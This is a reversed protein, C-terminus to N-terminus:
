LPTSILSNAVRRICGWQESTPLGPRAQRIIWWGAVDSAIKLHLGEAMLRVRGAADRNLADVLTQCGRGSWELDVIRRWVGRVPRNRISIREHRGELRPDRVRYLIDVYRALYERFNDDQYEEDRYHVVLENVPGPEINLTAEYRDSFFGRKFSHMGRRVYLGNRRMEWCFDDIWQGARLGEAESRGLPFLVRQARRILRM